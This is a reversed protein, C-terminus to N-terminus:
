DPDFVGEDLYRRIRAQNAKSYVECPWRFLQPDTMMTDCFAWREVDGHVAGLTHGLEHAVTNANRVSAMAFRDGAFAIGLVNGGTPAGQTVLVMRIARRDVALRDAVPGARRAWDHLARDYGYPTLELDEWQRHVHIRIDQGPVVESRMHGLWASVHESVFDQENMQVEQHLVFHIDLTPPPTALAPLPLVAALALVLRKM